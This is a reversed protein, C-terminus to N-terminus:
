DSQKGKIEIKNERTDRETLTLVTYAYMHSGGWGGWGRKPFVPIPAMELLKGQPGQKLASMPGCSHSSQLDNTKKSPRGQLLFVIYKQGGM